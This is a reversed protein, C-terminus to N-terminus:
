TARTPAAGTSGQLTDRVIRYLVWGNADQGGARQAREFLSPRRETRAPPYQTLLTKRGLLAAAAASAAEFGYRALIGRRENYFEMQWTMGIEETRAREHRGEAQKAFEPRSLAPQGYMPVNDIRQESRVAVCGGLLLLIAAVVVSPASHCGVRRAAFRAPRPRRTSGHGASFRSAMSSASPCKPRIQHGPRTGTSM